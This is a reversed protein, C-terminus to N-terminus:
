APAVELQSLMENIARHRCTWPTPEDTTFREVVPMERKARHCLNVLGEILEERSSDDSVVITEALVSM